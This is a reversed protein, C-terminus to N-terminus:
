LDGDPRTKADVGQAHTWTGGAAIKIRARGYRTSINFHSMGDTGVAEYASDTPTGGPTDRSRIQTTVTGGDVYPRIGSIHIRTGEAGSAETTELQAELIDGSFRALDGDTDFASLLREGGTWSRSDLSLPLLDLNSNIGDLQELTYGPTLGTTLYQMSVDATSWRDIAWNYMILTDPEGSTSNVSPYAWFVIKNISDASGYVRDIYTQNLNAFFTKDVRRDGIPTSKTGDFAFFGSEDLYFAVTGVNVVSNRAHAGRDREIEYFGFITPPGEYVIRYIAKELFVAGDTGGIAGVIAQVTNGTAIDNYDSQKSAADSSGISPWDTPDNFASWWVRNPVGGDTSDFTNGVMVFDGIVSGVRARPADSNLQSFTSDTGMLYTQMDDSLGLIAICREGFGVFEVPYDSSVTYAGASASVNNWTGTNLLFFDKEDSAFNYVVGDNDRLSGAGRVVGTGVVGSISSLGSLPAYSAETRPLVNNIYASGQNEYDPQDPTYQAFPIM